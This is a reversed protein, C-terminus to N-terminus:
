ISIKLEAVYVGDKGESCLCYKGPYLLELRKRLNMLGIGSGSRDNDHKPFDSNEIRCVVMGGEVRLAIHIFSPMTPSTGHKFANEILTIFLLPAVCVNGGKEPLDVQLEVNGALRLSMLEIYSRMFVLESELAVFQQKDEYLVHRLLRSLDHVAYQARDADIAILSYINNLTNFLFHPNLQNRLNQLEAESRVKELEKRENETVYWNNTMKIAVCLAATLAMMTADRIVFMMKPPGPEDHRENGMINFFYYEHWWNLALTLLVLFFLNAVLFHVLRKRFLLRDILLFYNVYFMVM